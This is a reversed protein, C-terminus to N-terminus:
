SLMMVMKDFWRDPLFKRSYISLHAMKGAVYRTRPRSVLAARVVVAALKEPPTGGKPTYSRQMAKEMKLALSRYATHGSREMMPKLSVDGFETFIIGPEIIVVDIGFPKVELRLTDSLGELAHKSAYYWSGMPTYVKGGMSSINIIRGKGKERMGPLVLQTLHGLGFLNVEFQYRVDKLAVDEMAGYTGFGANNVLIDVGGSEKAIRAIASVRDTEEVIDMNILRAGLTALDQMKEIRRAAAYVVLGKDLLLKVTERGIGASAGTVLAVLPQTPQDM